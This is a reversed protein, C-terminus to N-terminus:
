TKDNEPLELPQNIIEVKVGEEEILRGGEVIIEDEISLGRLIEVYDGEIEGILVPNKVTQENEVKWVFIENQLIHLSPLPVFIRDYDM